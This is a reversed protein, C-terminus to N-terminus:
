EGLFPILLRLLFMSLLILLVIATSAKIPPIYAPGNRSRRSSRRRHSPEHKSGDVPMSERSRETRVPREPPPDQVLVPPTMPAPPLAGFGEWRHPRGQGWPMYIRWGNELFFAELERRYNLIDDAPVEPATVIFQTTKTWSGPNRPEDIGAAFAPGHWAHSRRPAKRMTPSRVTFEHTVRLGSPMAWPTRRSRDEPLTFGQIALSPPVDFLARQRSEDPYFQDSLAYTEIFECVNRERNDRWALTGSRRAKGYRRRMSDERSRAFEEPGASHRAGRLNDAEWGETCIYVELHCEEGRRTDLLMTERLTYSAQPRAGPQSCLGGALAEVPLGFGFWGVHRADFDGGQQRETLDFWRSKGDHRVEIVAHNFLIAMPLLRAVAERLGTAVLVPRASVGWRRLVCTALWALDKCDGYRRRAVTGPTAPIWGGSDLDVSLYRFEDQIHQILRVIAGGDIQAPRAFEPIDDLARGDDDERWARSVATALTEWAPLDSVQVWVFDFCSSPQNPEPVRPESQTGEWVLQTAGDAAREEQPAPADSSAKWALPVAGPPTTISLRFKGVAIQAPVAFFIECCGPLIPHRTELTFAAEIVDGPRVDDLVALLTWTGDLVLRELQTERQNLRMRERQLHDISQGGRVIRLWHLTLRQSRADFQVSWQSEHQVAVSTELRVATSHYSCSAGANVQREWLLQTIHAGSRATVATDYATPQIWPAPPGFSIRSWPVQQSGNDKESPPLPVSDM